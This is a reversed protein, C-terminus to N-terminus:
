NQMFLLSLPFELDPKAMKKIRDDLYEVINVVPVNIEELNLLLSDLIVLLQDLRILHQPLCLINLLAIMTKIRPRPNLIIYGRSAIDGIKDLVAGFTSPSASALLPLIDHGKEIINIGRPIYPNKGFVLKYLKLRAEAKLLYEEFLAALRKRRSETEELIWTEATIPVEKMKEWASSMFEETGFEVKRIEKLRVRGLPFVTMSPGFRGVGMKHIRVLTGVNALGLEEHAFIVICFDTERINAVLSPPNLGILTKRPTHPFFIVDGTRMLPIREPPPRWPKDPM